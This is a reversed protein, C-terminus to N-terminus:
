SRKQRPRDWIPLGSLRLPSGLLENMRHAIWWTNASDANHTAYFEAIAQRRAAKGDAHHERLEDLVANYIAGEGSHMGANAKSLLYDYDLESPPKRLERMLEDDTFKREYKEM